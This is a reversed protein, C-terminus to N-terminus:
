GAVDEAGCGAIAIFEDSAREGGDCIFIAADEQIEVVRAAAKTYFGAFFGPSERLDMEVFAALEVAFWGALAEDLMFAADASLNQDVEAQFVNANECIMGLFDHGKFAVADADGVLNREADLLRSFGV